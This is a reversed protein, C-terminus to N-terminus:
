NLSHAFASRQDCVSCRRGAMLMACVSGEGMTAGALLEAGWELHIAAGALGLHDCLAIARRLLLLVTDREFRDDM